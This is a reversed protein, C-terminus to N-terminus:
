CVPRHNQFILTDGVRRHSLDIGDIEEAFKKTLRVRMGNKRPCGVHGGVASLSRGM